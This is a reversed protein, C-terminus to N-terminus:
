AQPIKLAQLGHAACQDQSLALKRAMKQDICSRAGSGTDVTCLTDGARAPRRLVVWEPAPPEEDRASREELMENAPDSLEFAGAQALCAALSIAAISALRKM